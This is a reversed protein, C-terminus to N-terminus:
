GRTLRAHEQEYQAYTWREREAQLALNHLARTLTAPRAPGGATFYSPATRPASGGLKM